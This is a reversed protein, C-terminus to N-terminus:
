SFGSPRRLQSGRQFRRTDVVTDRALDAIKLAELAPFLQEDEGSREVTISKLARREGRIIATVFGRAPSTVKIVPRKRDDFLAQGLRVRDGEDVLLRPVIGRYDQGLLGVTLTDRM